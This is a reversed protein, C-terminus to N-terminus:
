ELEGQINSFSTINQLPSPRMYYPRALMISMGGCPGAEIAVTRRGPNQDGDWCTAKVRISMVPSM